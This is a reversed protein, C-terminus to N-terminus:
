FLAIRTVEQVDTSRRFAATARDTYNAQPSRGRLKTKLVDTCRHETLIRRLILLYNLFPYLVDFMHWEFRFLFFFSNIERRIRWWCQYLQGMAKGTRRFGCCLFRKITTEGVEPGGNWGRRWWRFMQWGATFWKVRCVSGVTYLFRKKIFIRQMSDKQGYFRVVSRQQEYYVGWARNGNQSNFGAESCAYSRRSGLSDHLQVTSSGLSVCLSGLVSHQSAEM